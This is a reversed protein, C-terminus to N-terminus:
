DRMTALATFYREMGAAAQPALAIFIRRGDRPDAQREFMGSDSMTKIWRLATTAPVAAAICLSSVAVPHGELQAAYLDLLMDWAPDAFMEAPFFQERMRRQRLMRRVMASDVRQPAPMAAGFGALEPEARYGRESSRVMPSFSVPGRAGHGPEREAMAALVATIRAVEEQLRDIRELADSTAGDGVALVRSGRAAALAVECDATDPATLFQTGAVHAFDAFGIDLAAGELECIIAAGLRATEAAVQEAMRGDGFASGTVWVFDLRGQQGLRATLEGHAVDGVIRVGRCGGIRELREAHGACVAGDAGHSVLVLIEEAPASRLPPRKLMPAESTWPDHLM